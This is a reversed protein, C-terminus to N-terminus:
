VTNIKAMLKFSKEPGSEFLTIYERLMAIEDEKQTMFVKNEIMRGSADYLSTSLIQENQKVLNLTWGEKIKKDKFLPIKNAQREETATQGM